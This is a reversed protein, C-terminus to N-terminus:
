FAYYEAPNYLSWLRRQFDDLGNFLAAADDRIDPEYCYVYEICSLEAKYHELWRHIKVFVWYIM